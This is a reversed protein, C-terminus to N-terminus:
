MSALDTLDKSLSWPVVLGSLAEFLYAGDGNPDCFCKHRDSVSRPRPTQVPNSPASFYRCISWLNELQNCPADPLPHGAKDTPLCLERVEVTTTPRTSAVTEKIKGDEKEGDDGGEGSDGLAVAGLLTVLPIFRSYLM